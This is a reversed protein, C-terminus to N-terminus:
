MRLFRQCMAACGRQCISRAKVAGTHSEGSTGQVAYRSSHQEDMRAVSRGTMEGIGPAGKM